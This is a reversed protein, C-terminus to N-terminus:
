PCIRDETLTAAGQVIHFRARSAGERVWPHEDVERDAFRAAAQAETDGRLAYERLFRARRLGEDTSACITFADAGLRRALELAVVGEWVVVDGPRLTHELTRAMRDRSRRSYAPLELTVPARERGLALTAAAVIADIDYRGLVGPSRMPEPRLWRDLAMVVVGRGSLRLERALTAAVTSKGSRALGGVFWDQGAGIAAFAPACRAALAAYGEIIFDVASAFDPQVIGPMYPHRDDLGAEGTEVLIPTVGAQHAAGLDSTTDGIMWSSALDINLEDRARFVMGPAPKRCGCRVKLAAVEGAFGADPHHPCLYLRDFFAKSRAVETDLRAHIEAMTPVSCEGRAIVPQNTVVISRWEADNLRRLAPGVFPFVELEEPSRVYGREVNLTGDRDIFVARQAHRLSAREIVGAALAREVKDLREPTGADKIYEPSLYGRLHLGQALMLPFLDKAFDLPPPHGTWPRLAERRVVYLAANVLNPYWAGPPHPYGHFALIRGADDVRVLDSDHPHDNPHLFLTAAADPDARHWADLRRLDVDFMTDGYVVLFAEDLSDLIALVAGATGRPEGDDVLRVAIGFDGRSRCFAEIQEAKHNVLVVVETIGAAKLSLVQRELLPVGGVDVLPKPRGALRSALRTGKGGALVVAQRM